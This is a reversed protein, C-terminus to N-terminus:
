LLLRSCSASGSWLLELQKNVHITLGSSFFENIGSEISQSLLDSEALRRRTENAVAIDTTIIKIDPGALKQIVPALFAYHTCGLVINDAGKRILPSLYQEVLNVTEATTLKLSEVQEVLGPCPQIEISANSANTLALKNFSDSKLTQSTALVGIVGSQSNLSAPKVGPEVGIIPVSYSSRLKEIASVTATNCAIVIAKVGRSILFDFIQECRKHIFEESKEGYPAYLSDAIYIINENPLFNRIQTAISLGGIGSDFIGIPGSNIM